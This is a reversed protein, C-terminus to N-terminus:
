ATAWARAARARHDGRRHRPRRRAARDRAAILAFVGATAWARRSGRPRAGRVPRPRPDALLRDARRRLRRVTRQLRARGPLPRALVTMAIGTFTALFFAASLLWFPASRLADSASTSPTPAGRRPARAGAGRAAGARPRPITVAALILALVVLADRWGHADILAQSLPLFIFSALAAVLTLATLARRRQEAAPFWKALVSSPPSTSCPRGDGARDRGVARLLRGPGRRAVLRARAARRRGLRRDHARAPQPADLYRGVGIGAVGSILLALSFAGTLQATSFGLERQMPLLFVAFAYYLIGWSVTETVSLAGVIAWARSPARHRLGARQELTHPPASVRHRRGRRAALRRRLVGSRRRRSPPSRPQRQLRRDRPPRLEVKRAAQWDGDLAAVVSRVQEYGTRLLFTPARGYSKMGVVYIGADPHSLEEVGHPPVSGCSHVNPDILPALARPAEVRDDLDLRLEALLSLDPRFGTTAIVEDAVCRARATASSSGATASPSRAPTSAPSSSSPATTSCGASPRASRAASRAAPRRPRRRAQRGAGRAAGGVRDRTDPADERLEVLDVLVNFASHGTGAVMVRKGAYRERDRGLVDPIRYAIRDAAAREGAAPVGGAGLPNPKTWTGSADIM